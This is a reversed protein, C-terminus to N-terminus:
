GLARFAEVLLPLGAQIDSLAVAYSIRIHKDSGFGSGSVVAVGRELLYETLGDANEILRGTPAKKGLFPEVDLFFYFAGEPLYPRVEPLNEKLYTFIYDRREKFAQVMPSLLASLDQKFGALAAKQAIINAGATTQGQVKIAAEAIPQPAILYGLRWGPMAFAKSFGNTILTRDYLEPLQAPSVHRGEYRILEYIEDSIIWVKPYEQLVEALAHLEELSYATGTPNSPTCLILARSRQSLAASLTEPTLKYNTETTTKVIVPRGEALQILPLYSVWYPAPLIVEDGPEILTLLANFIAQKSGNSVVVQSAKYPLGYTRHYYEAIAERLPLLGAVPPYPAHGERIAAIAAEQLPLPVPFDPEGLLLSLVFRGAARLERVRQAMGLTQAESLSAVRQAIVPAATM